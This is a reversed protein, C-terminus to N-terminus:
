DTPTSGADVSGADNTTTDNATADPHVHVADTHHGANGHAGTHQNGGGDGHHHEHKPTDSYFVASGDSNLNGYLNSYEYEDSDANHVGTPRGTETRRMRVRDADTRRNDDRARARARTYASGLTESDDAPEDENRRWSQTDIRTFYEGASLVLFVGALACTGVILWLILDQVHISLNLLTGALALVVLLGGIVVRAMFERRTMPRSRM